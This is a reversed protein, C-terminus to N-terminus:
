SLIWTGYTYYKGYMLIGACGFSILIPLIQKWV